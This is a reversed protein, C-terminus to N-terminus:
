VIVYQQGLPKPSVQFCAEQKLFSLIRSVHCSVQVADVRRGSSGAAQLKRGLMTLLMAPPAVLSVHFATPESWEPRLRGLWVSYWLVRFQRTMSKFTPWTHEVHPFHRPFRVHQLRWQFAKYLRTLANIAEQSPRPHRMMARFDWAAGMDQFLNQLHQPVGTDGWYADYAEVLCTLFSFGARLGVQTLQHVAPVHRSTACQYKDERFLELGQLRPNLPPTRFIEYRLPVDVPDLPAEERAQDPTM